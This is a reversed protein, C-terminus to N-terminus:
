VDFMLNRAVAGDHICKCIKAASECRDPDTIDACEVAIERILQMKASDDNFKMKGMEVVADVNLKNNKLQFEFCLYKLPNKYQKTINKLYKVLFQVMGFRESICAHLCNATKTSPLKHAFLEELDDQTAQETVACDMVIKMMEQMQEETIAAQLNFLVLLYDFPKDGIKANIREM